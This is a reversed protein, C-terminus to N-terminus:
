EDAADSTYLLCFRPVIKEYYIDPMSRQYGSDNIQKDDVKLIAGQMYSKGVFKWVTDVNNFVAAALLAKGILNQPDTHEEAIKENFIPNGNKDVPYFTFPALIRTLVNQQKGTDLLMEEFMWVDEPYNQLHAEVGKFFRLM